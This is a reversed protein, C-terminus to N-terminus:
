LLQVLQLLLLPPTGGAQRPCDAPVPAPQQQRLGAAWCHLRFSGRLASLLLPLLKGCPRSCGVVLPSQGLAEQEQLLRQCGKHCPHDVLLRLYPQQLLPGGLWQVQALTRVVPQLVWCAICHEQVPFRM